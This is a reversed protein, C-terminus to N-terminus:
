VGFGWVRYARFCAFGFGAGGDEIRCYDITTDPELTQMTHTSINKLHYSRSTNIYIYMYIYTYVFVYTRIYM